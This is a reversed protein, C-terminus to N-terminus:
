QIQFFDMHMIRPKFVHHQISKVRVKYTISDMILFFQEKYIDFKFIINSIINHDLEICINSKSYCYIVAPFKNNLRLRRSSSKGEKKRKNVNITIM